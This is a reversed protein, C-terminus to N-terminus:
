KKRVKVKIKKCSVKQTDVICRDIFPYVFIREKIGTRYYVGDKVPSVYDVSSCHLMPLSILIIIFQIIRSKKTFM